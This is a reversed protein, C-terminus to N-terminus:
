LMVKRRRSDMLREMRHLAQWAPSIQFQSRETFQKQFELQVLRVPQERQVQPDLQEQLAQLVRPVRQVQLERQVPLVLRVQQVKHDLHVAEVELLDQLERQVLQAKHDLQALLVQLEQQAKREKRGL